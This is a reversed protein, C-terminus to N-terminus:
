DCFVSIFSLGTIDSYKRAFTRRDVTLPLGLRIEPLPRAGSARWIVEKVVLTLKYHKGEDNWTTCSEILDGVRPLTPFETHWAEAQSVKLTPKCIVSIM